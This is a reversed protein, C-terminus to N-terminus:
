MNNYKRLPICRMYIHKYRDTLSGWREVGCWSRCASPSGSQCGSWERSCLDAVNQWPGTPSVSPDILEPVCPNLCPFIFLLLSEWWQPYACSYSHGHSLCNCSRATPTLRERARHLRFFLVLFGGASMCVSNALLLWSQGITHNEACYWGSWLIV